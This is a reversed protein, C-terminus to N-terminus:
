DFYGSFKDLEAIDEETLYEIEWARKLEEHVDRKENTKEYCRYSMIKCIVEDDKLGKFLALFKHWHLEKVELLDIGYQSLFASYIYDADLRYDLVIANSHRIQRPLEEKPRSFSFLEELNCYSPKDNQFLYGVDIRDGRKMRSVEIEFRMWLRFDTYISFDRGGVRVTNPLTKRTLDIM